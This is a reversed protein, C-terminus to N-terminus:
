EKIDPIVVRVTAYMSFIIFVTNMASRTWFRYPNIKPVILTYLYVCSYVGIVNKLSFFLWLLSEHNLSKIKNNNNYFCETLYKEQCDPKGILGDSILELFVENFLSSERKTRSVCEVCKLKWLMKVSCCIGVRENAMVLEYM